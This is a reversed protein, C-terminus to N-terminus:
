QKRILFASGPAEDVLKLVDPAQLYIRDVQSPHLSSIAPFRPPIKYEICAIKKYIRDLQTGTYHPQTCTKKTQAGYPTCPLRLCHARKATQQAFCPAPMVVLLVWQSVLLCWWNVEVGFRAVEGARWPARRQALSREDVGSWTLALLEWCLM